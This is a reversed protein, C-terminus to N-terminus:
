VRASNLVFVHLVACCTAYQLVPPVDASHYVYKFIMKTQLITIGPIIIVMCLLVYFYSSVCVVPTCVIRLSTMFKPVVYYHKFRYKNYHKRYKYM